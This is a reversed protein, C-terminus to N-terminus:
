NAQQLRCHGGVPGSSLSLIADVNFPLPPPPLPMELHIGPPTPHATSTIGQLVLTRPLITALALGDDYITNGNCSVELSNVCPPAPPVPTSQPDPMLAAERAGPILIVPCIIARATCHAAGKGEGRFRCLVERARLAPLTPSPTPTPVPDPRYSEAMAVSGVSVGVCCVLGCMWKKMQNMRGQNM